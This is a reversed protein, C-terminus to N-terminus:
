MYAKWGVHYVTIDSAWRDAPLNPVKVLLELHSQLPLLFSGMFGMVRCLVVSSSIIQKTSQTYGPTPLRISLSVMCSFREALPATFPLASGRVSAIALAM